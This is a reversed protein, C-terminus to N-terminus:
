LGEGLHDSCLEDLYDCLKGVFVNQLCEQSREAFGGWVRDEFKVGNCRVWQQIMGEARFKLDEALELNRQEQKHKLDAEESPTLDYVSFSM